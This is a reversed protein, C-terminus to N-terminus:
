CISSAFLFEGSVIVTFNSSQLSIAIVYADLVQGIKWFDQIM